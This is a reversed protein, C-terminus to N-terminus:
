QFIDFFDQEHAGARGAYGRLDVLGKAPLGQSVQVRIEQGDHILKHLHKAPDHIRLVPERDGYRSRTGCAHLRAEHIEHLRAVLNKDDRVADEAHPHLVYSAPKAGLDVRM